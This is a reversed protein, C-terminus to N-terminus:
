EHGSTTVLHFATGFSTSTLLDPVTVRQLFYPTIAIYSKTSLPIVVGGCVLRYILAKPASAACVSSGQLTQRLGLNAHTTLIRTTTM